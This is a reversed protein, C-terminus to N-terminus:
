VHQPSRQRDVNNYRQAKSVHDPGSDGAGVGEQIGVIVRADDLLILCSVVRLAPGKLWESKPTEVEIGRLPQNVPTEKPSVM